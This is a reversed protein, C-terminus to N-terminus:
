TSQHYYPTIQHWVVPICLTILLEAEFHGHWDKASTTNLLHAMIEGHAIFEDDRKGIWGKLLTLERMAPMADSYLCVQCVMVLYIACLTNVTGVKDPNKM